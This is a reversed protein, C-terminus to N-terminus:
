CTSSGRGAIPADARELAQGLQARTLPGESAQSREIVSLGRETVAPTVGGEQALRTTNATRLQATLRRAHVAGASV